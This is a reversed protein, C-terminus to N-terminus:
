GHVPGEVHAFAAAVVAAPDTQIVERPRLGGLYSSTSEFWSALRRPEWGDLVRMVEAVAPLPQGHEDIAYAPFRNHGHYQIAFLRRGQLLRNAFDHKNAANPNAREGLQRATLWETGSLVAEAARLRLREALPDLERIPLQDLLTQSREGLSPVTLNVPLLGAALAAPPVGLLQLQTRVRRALRRRAMRSASHASPQLLRGHRDAAVTVAASVQGAQKARVAAPVSAKM